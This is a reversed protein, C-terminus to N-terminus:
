ARWSDEFKWKPYQARLVPLHQSWDDSHVREPGYLHFTGLRDIDFGWSFGTIPVVRRNTLAGFMEEELPTTALFSHARWRIEKREPRSPADFLTPLLGYFAYPSPCDQFPQFPDVEFSRGETENDTSRVLQIWGFFANYGRGEFQLTAKCVPFGKADASQGIRLPDSVAGCHVRVQGRSGRYAFDLDLVRMNSDYGEPDAVSAPAM